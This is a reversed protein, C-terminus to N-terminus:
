VAARATRRRFFALLAIGGALLPAGAPLPIVAPNSTLRLTFSDGQFASTLSIVYNLNLNALDEIADQFVSVGLFNEVGAIDGYAYRGWDEEDLAYVDNVSISNGDGDLSADIGRRVEWETGNDWAMVLPDATGLAWDWLLGDPVMERSLWSGFLDDYSGYFGTTMLLDEALALDFGARSDGDFFGDLTFTPNPNPQQDDGFLGFPYQTFAALNNPGLMATLDFGLGDGATSATFQSGVGFGLEVTFSGIMQETLNVARHFVQYLSDTNTTEVDFVLDVSGTDTLQEKFRKGSQFDSSCDATSSAIICGDFSGQGTTYPTNLVELGPYDAEPAEYYIKGNTETKAADQYVVSASDEPAPTNPDADVAVGLEVNDTNWGTITAASAAFPVLAVIGGAFVRSLLRKRNMM